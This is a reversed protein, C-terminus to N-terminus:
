YAYIFSFLLHNSAYKYYKIFSFGWEKFDALKWFPGFLFTHIQSSLPLPSPIIIICVLLTLSYCIIEWNTSHKIGGGCLNEMYKQKRSIQHFNVYNFLEKKNISRNILHNRKLLPPPPTLNTVFNSSTYLCYYVDYRLLFLQLPFNIIVKCQHEIM